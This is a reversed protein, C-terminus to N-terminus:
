HVPHTGRPIWRRGISLIRIFPQALPGLAQLLRLLQYGSNDRGWRIRGSGMALSQYQETVALLGNRRAFDMFDNEAQFWLAWPCDYTLCHEQLRRPLHWPKHAGAYHVIHPLNNRDLLDVRYTLTNFKESVWKADNAYLVNFLHQEQTELVDMAALPAQWDIREGEPWGLVGANFPLSFPDSKSPTNGPKGRRAVVLKQDKTASRIDDFIGDWGDLAVTDADIWVHQQPIADSLLFKAFTTPSIHGQTIFRDDNALNLFDASVRLASFVNGLYERENETLTGELFGVTLHFPKKATHTLSCCLVALAHVMNSDIACVVRNVNPEVNWGSGKPEPQTM